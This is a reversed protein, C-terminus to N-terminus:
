RKKSEITKATSSLATKVFPLHELSPFGDKNADIIKQLDAKHTGNLWTSKFARVASADTSSSYGYPQNPLAKVLVPNTIKKNEAKLKENAEYLDCVTKFVAEVSLGDPKTLRVTNHHKLIRDFHLDTDRILSTAGSLFYARLLISRLERVNGPFHYSQLKKKADETLSKTYGNSTNEETLFKEALMLIEEKRERLPPVTITIINIRYFFDDLFKGEQVLDIINQNTAFIFRAKTKKDTNGGLSRFTAAKEKSFFGDLVRKLKKQVSIPMQQIEDLFITGETYTELIGTRVSIAGTYAGKEHGFLESTVMDAGEDYGSCNIAVYKKDKRKSLEHISKALHEKGTGTEGIILIPTDSQIAPLMQELRQRMMDGVYFEPNGEIWKQLLDSNSKKFAALTKQTKIIEETLPAKYLEILYNIIFDRLQRYITLQKNRNSEVSKFLVFVSSRIIRDINDKHPLSIWFASGGSFQKKLEVIWEDFLVDVNKNGNSFFEDIGVPDPIKEAKYNKTTTSIISTGNIAKYFFGYDGSEEIILSRQPKGNKINLFGDVANKYKDKVDSHDYSWWMLTGESASDISVFQFVLIPNTTNAKNFADVFSEIKTKVDVM